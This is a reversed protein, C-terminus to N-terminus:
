EDDQLYLPSLNKNKAVFIDLMDKMKLFKALMLYTSNWWTEIYIKIVFDRVKKIVPSVLQLGHQIALNLIYAACRQHVLLKETINAENLVQEITQQINIATHKKTLLCLDLLFHRLQWESNIFHVTISLYSQMIISSWIDCTISVKKPKKLKKLVTKYMSKYKNLIGTQITQQCPIQYRNDFLNLMAVFYPNDIVSFPL